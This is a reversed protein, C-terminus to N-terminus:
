SKLLIFRLFLSFSFDVHGFMCRGTEHSDIIGELQVLAFDAFQLHLVLVAGLQFQRFHEAGRLHEDLPVVVLQPVVFPVEVIIHDGPDAGDAHPVGVHEDPLLHLLDLMHRDKVGEAVMVHRAHQRVVQGDGRGSAPQGPQPGAAATSRFGVFARDLDALHSGMPM